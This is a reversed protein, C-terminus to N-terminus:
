RLLYKEDNRYDVFFREGQESIKTMQVDELLCSLKLVYGIGAVLDVFCEPECKISCLDVFEGQRWIIEGVILRSIFASMQVVTALDDVRIANKVIELELMQNM